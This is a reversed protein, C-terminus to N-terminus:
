KRLGKLAGEVAARVNADDAMLRGLAATLGDRGEASDAAAAVARGAAAARLGRLGAAVAAAGAASTVWAVFARDDSWPSGAVAPAGVRGGEAWARLHEGAAARSLGPDAALAHKALEDEALRRKLRAALFARAGAWPVVGALVGKAAMRVPTDHMDAFATAVQRYAPLLATERETPGRAAPGAAARAAAVAPDLRAMAALLDPTRFKIEVLGEPELVGGRATPDAYMEIRAANIQADVVVWAGGRLEAGPPLYVFAPQKFKRLADVILSGAQLVGEYLDRQGGSFGRWNALIVLPLGEADFEEIAHATKLASDPFWVQGAQPVTREASAADGPDAPVQLMVTTAEVAIVGVPVGALRARGAVVTRAWGAQAETWSGRDFLGGVWAGGPTPSPRGAIAARADLKESPGPTYAIARDAPDSGPLLPPAGGLVPPVYSLWTLVAAVGELDDAVVHHSVGNAGMVRPGGLQMHSSYVDRGLVKNLAAYGTLIIPQDARQVCRRGLRALYAGIGVTRGSVLTLTFGEAFARSYASAIAGSGSLNEVGLGDEAGVVDTLTWRLSGDPGTDATAKVAGPARAIIAQYDDDTLYLSKFGKTPDDAVAWEVRLCAKVEAALGVRAGSNAALYVLPLREALALETAGRFAADERPGFAGSNHTIDNAVAVIRRGSPCEPTRLTLIWAVVGVDNRGVARDVPAMHGPAAFTAGPPLVLEAADVLRGVPLEGPERASARASWIGRLANEFVSPFDYCYTTRHRRAALRKQQLGELPPYPSLLPAGDLPGPPGAGPAAAYTPVADTGDGGPAERYVSVFDEGTEHGTPSAVVVRWAGGGDAARLRVEWQALGARRLQPGHRATARAAAARLAAAVRGGDAGAGLPLPPLVTLFVHAWDARGGDGGGRSGAGPHGRELERLAAGLAADVEDMVGAAVAGADGKYTAALLAPAGLQRVASRVFVRRLAPARPDRREVVAYSHAQRNRSPAYAVRPGFPALRSLELLAATHPEVAALLPDPAYRGGRRVLGVRLPAVAGTKVLVSVHEYGAAALHPEISAVAATVAAVAPRPDAGVLAEGAAAAFPAAADRAAALLPAAAPTLALAADGGRTLIVHLTGRPLDAHGAAALAAEAADLAAPLADLGGVAVAAGAGSRAAKTGDLGPHEHTWVATLPAGTAAGGALDPGRTLLPHYVRKVYTSLARSALTADRADLLSALADDVAAPADVLLRVKADLQTAALSAGGSLGSYLGEVVTPRRCLEPMATVAAPADGAAAASSDDACADYEAHLLDLGSLQGGAFMDLGSLARAVVAQLEALLSHELLQQALLAADGGAAGLAAVRRLLPRYHEPSPLVLAAMLATALRVKRPLGMHSVVIDVVAGLNNAYVGRLSDIVEQETAGGRSAFREEVDLFEEFLDCAVSRAYVEKGGAHARAVRTLPEATAALSAGDGDPSAEIAAEIAALLAAAPFAGARGDDSGPDVSMLDREHAAAVRELENALDVPLRTQVVAFESAWQLLALAPDDLCALLDAVVADPDHEFGAMVGKAAEAAQKFRHDVGQSYILPPGLEPFGGTYPAAREVAHAADLALRAILDGAALVSGEPLKFEIAGAAPSLLPMLMKMVEIEAYPAGAEVRAGDAVLHRVLKGPSMTVLRSPDAENALLCTLSDITLRTGAAEEESHVVHSGGDVQVLLGGDNLRRAVVDVHTGGLTVRFAQPGRRAVTADYAAGDVVFQAPVSTLTLRAPPLQGKELYGLYEASVAAVTDLCRLLGGAIVALYWAPKEARVHAAIRADLWGTSIRNQVFDPDQVMETAYDVITRIEGRIKVEKLAVVMARIAAERTEGKAFLHGFQSDSYEHIGGGSKVSFYGWVDPSTRFSLEDINGCTPKFGDNADESTIRVAVVHGSPPTQADAEFDIADSAKPDKGYLRRIDPIRHLPVGMGVLLQASPINVGSIWETVPHEVQLRPNLELFFFEGTDLTYLYEVTAAGVYGVARALARACREMERLKGAPAKTVPGEEVIKQHRRQVSCDRSHISTVGGHADCLLQVELHRSAPALKMTFIPSGPVEGQVARFVARVDDDSAVQPPPSPSPTPPTPSVAARARAGRREGGGRGVKRIGKGGGGWSAKLMVPYGIRACSALADDVTHVCASAYVDPPIVGHCSGFDVAVGTGSWPITPVGAAQAMITSGIKDGLAAMAAAPPGLFRIGRPTDALATPLEPKESAHGWGPWVADV